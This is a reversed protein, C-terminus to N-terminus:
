AAGPMRSAAPLESSPVLLACALAFLCAIAGERIPYDVSSHVLIMLVVLTGARALPSSRADSAGRWVSWAERAFWVLFAILILLSAVGGEVLIELFDDHARNFYVGDVLSAPEFMQFVPVFSGFGAGAPWFRRIAAFTYPLSTFRLDAGQDHFRALAPIRDALLAVVILAGVAAVLVVARPELSTTRRRRAPRLALAGALGMAALILGARSRTIFVGMVLAPVILWAPELQVSAGGRHRASRSHSVAIALPIACALFDAEHDPNAFLGLTSGVVDRNYFELPSFPGGATQLLSIAINIGGFAIILWALRTRAGISLGLSAVFVAAAPILALLSHLTADPTLSLPMPGPQVGAAKLIALEVARGPLSAWVEVPLPVLQILPLVAAAALIFLAFKRTGAARGEWLGWLGLGLAPLGSSEVLTLALPSARSSGLLSFALM